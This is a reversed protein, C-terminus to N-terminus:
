LVPTVIRVTNFKQKATKTIELNISRKIAQQNQHYSEMPRAPAHDASQARM